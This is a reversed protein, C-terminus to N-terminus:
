RLGIFYVLNSPNKSRKSCKYKNKSVKKQCPGGIGEQRNKNPINPERIPM